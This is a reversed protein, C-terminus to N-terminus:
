IRSRYLRWKLREKLEILVPLLILLGCAMDIFISYDSKSVVDLSPYFEYSLKGFSAGAFVIGALITSSLILGIDAITMRFISFRSRKGLGFGRARMSNATDVANELSWTLVVSFIRMSAKAKTMYGDGTYLGMAMQSNGVKDSQIKFLPIYRLAMSFVISLNPALRGSLYMLKDSTMVRTFAKCWHIVGLMMVAMCAGYAAAELTIPKGNLFFLITRGRHIFIPNAVAIIIFLMFDFLVSSRISSKYEVANYIWAGLFSLILIVPHNIFMTITLVMVFYILLAVPHYSAFRRM